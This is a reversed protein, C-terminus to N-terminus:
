NVNASGSSEVSNIGFGAVPCGTGVVEGVSVEERVIRRVLSSFEHYCFGFLLIATQSGGRRQVLVTWRNDECGIETLESLRANM